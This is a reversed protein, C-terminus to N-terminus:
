QARATSAQALEPFLDAILTSDDSKELIRAGVPNAANAAVLKLQPRPGVARVAAARVDSLRQTAPDLEARFVERGAMSSGTVTALAPETSAAHVQLALDGFQGVEAAYEAMMEEASTARADVVLDAIHGRFFHRPASGRYSRTLGLAEGGVWLDTNAYSLTSAQLPAQRELVGNLYLQVSTGDFVLAAHYWQGAEVPTSSVFDGWGGAGLPAGVCGRLTGRRDFPALVMLSYGETWEGRSIITHYVDRETLNFWCKITLPGRVDYEPKRPFRLM